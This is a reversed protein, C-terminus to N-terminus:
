LIKVVDTVPGSAEAVKQSVYKGIGDLTMGRHVM